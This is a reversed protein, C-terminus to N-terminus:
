VTADRTPKLQVISCFMRGRQEALVQELTKIGNIGCFDLTIRSYIHDILVERRWPPTSAPIRAIENTIIETGAPGLIAEIKRHHVFGPDVFLTTGM